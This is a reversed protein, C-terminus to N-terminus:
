PQLAALMAKVDSLRLTIELHCSHGVQWKKNYGDVYDVAAQAREVAEADLTRATRQGKNFARVAIMALPMRDITSLAIGFVSLQEAIETEAAEYIEWDEDSLVPDHCDLMDDLTTMAVLPDTMAKAGKHSQALARLAAYLSETVDYTTEALTACVNAAEEFADARAADMVTAVAANFDFYSEPAREIDCKNAARLMLDAAETHTM